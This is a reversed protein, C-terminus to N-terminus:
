APMPWLNCILGVTEAKQATTAHCLKILESPPRSFGSYFPRINFFLRTLYEEFIPLQIPNLKDILRQTAYHDTFYQPPQYSALKFTAEGPPLWLNLLNGELDMLQAWGEHKALLIEKEPTTLM